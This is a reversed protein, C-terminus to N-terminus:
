AIPLSKTITWDGVFAVNHVEILHVSKTTGMSTKNGCQCVLRQTSFQVMSRAAMDWNKVQLGHLSVRRWQSFSNELQFWIDLKEEIFPWYYLFDIISAMFNFSNLVYTFNEQNKFLNGWGPSSSSLAWYKETRKNFINVTM